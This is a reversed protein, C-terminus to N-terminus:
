AGEIGLAVLIRRRAANSMKEAKVADIVAEYYICGDHEDDYDASDYHGRKWEDIGRQIAAQQANGAIEFLEAPSWSGPLPESTRLKIIM